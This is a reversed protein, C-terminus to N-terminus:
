AGIPGQPFQRFQSPDPIRHLELERLLLLLKALQEVARSRSLVLLNQALPEVRKDLCTHVKKRRLCAM